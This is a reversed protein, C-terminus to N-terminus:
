GTPKGLSPIEIPDLDFHPSARHDRSGFSNRIVFEEVKMSGAGQKCIETMDELAKEATEETPKSWM